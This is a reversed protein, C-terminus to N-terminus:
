PMLDWLSKQWYRKKREMREREESRAQELLLTIFKEIPMEGRIVGKIPISKELKEGLMVDFSATPADIVLAVKQGALKTSIYYTDTNVTVCGDSGVQRALVRRHSRWLWRDAQVTEPM